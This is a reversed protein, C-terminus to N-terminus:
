YSVGRNRSTFHNENEAIIKRSHVLSNGGNEWLQNEIQLDILTKPLPEKIHVRRRASHM